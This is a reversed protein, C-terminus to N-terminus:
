FQSTLNYIPMVITFILFGVGVGLLIIILPEIATTLGKVASESNSEFYHSLKGLVDDLKGTEEGVAVMQGIIPIFSESEAFSVSLPFGKEVKSIIRRLESEIIVNGTAASVVQLAEVISVGAGVLLALTRTMETLMIMNQMPGMVPIKYAIGDWWKRGIPTALYKKFSLYAVVCIILALWWYKVSFDSMAILIQTPMPLKSGFEKYLGTLKPVVVVMMLVMVGIMGIFVIVPYVLAGKVKGAFDRGKELNDALRNLITEMVGASEGAKVLAIYVKNFVKPHKSLATSLATGAQVDDLIKGVIEGFLPTSQLKLLNLADTLPLGANLMTAMQRTFAALEDDSVGKLKSIFKDLDLGPKVEAIDIPILKQASVSSQAHAVDSADVFGKIITGQLDRAKYSFKM